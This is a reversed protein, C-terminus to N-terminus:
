IEFRSGSKKHCYNVQKKKCESGLSEPICFWNFFRVLESYAKVLIPSPLIRALFFLFFLFYYFSSITLSSILLEMLGSHSGLDSEIELCQSILVKKNQDRSIKDSGPYQSEQRLLCGSIYLCGRFLTFYGCWICVQYRSIPYGDLHTARVIPDLCEILEFQGISM